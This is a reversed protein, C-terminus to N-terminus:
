ADLEVRLAETKCRAEFRCMAPPLTRMLYKELLIELMSRFISNNGQEGYRKNIAVSPKRLAIASWLGHRNELFRSIVSTM